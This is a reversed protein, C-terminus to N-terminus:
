EIHLLPPMISATYFLFVLRFVQGGSTGCPFAKLQFRAEATLSRRIVAQVKLESRAVFM